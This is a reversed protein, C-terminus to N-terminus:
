RLGLTSGRNEAGGFTQASRIKAGPQFKGFFNELPAFVPLRKEM